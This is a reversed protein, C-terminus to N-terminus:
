RRELVHKLTRLQRAVDRGIGARVLRRLPRPAGLRAEDRQTLRTSTWVPELEYAVHIVTEGDDERWAIREPPEYERCTYAMRRAPRFALRRHLVDCRAGAGPGEGETQEVALVKACWVPDNSPDAVYRFVDEIHCDIVVSRVIQMAPM